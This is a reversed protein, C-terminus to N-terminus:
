CKKKDSILGILEERIRSVLTDCGKYMHRARFFKEEQINQDVNAKLKRLSDIGYRIMIETNSIRPQVIPDTEGADKLEHWTVSIRDIINNLNVSNGETKDKKYETLAVEAQEFLKILTQCQSILQEDM